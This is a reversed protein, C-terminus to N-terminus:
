RPVVFLLIFLLHYVSLMGGAFVTGMEEVDDNAIVENM